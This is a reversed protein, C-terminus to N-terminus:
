SINSELEDEYREMLSRLVEEAIDAGHASPDDIVERAAYYEEENRLGREAVRSWDIAVAARVRAVSLGHGQRLVGDLQDRQEPTCEGIMTLLDRTAMRLGSERQSQKLDRNREVGARVESIVENPFDAVEALVEWCRLVFSELQEENM